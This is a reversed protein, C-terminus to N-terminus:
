AAKGYKEAYLRRAQDIWKDRLIRDRFTLLRSFEEVAVHDWDMIQRYTYIGFENLRSELVSAIGSIRKLDDREEPPITYILGRREDQQLAVDLNTTTINPVNAQESAEQFRDNQQQSTRVETLSQAVDSAAVPEAKTLQSELIVNQRRLQAIAQDRDRELAVISQHSNALQRRLQDLMDNSEVARAATADREAAIMSVDRVLQENAHQLEVVQHQLSELANLKQSIIGLRKTQESLVNGLEDNQAKEHQLSALLQERQGRMEDLDRQYVGIQQLNDEWVSQSDCLQRAITDRDLRMANFEKTQERLGAHLSVCQQRLSNLERIDDRLTEITHEHQRVLTELENRRSEFTALQAVTKEHGRSLAELARQHHQLDELADASSAAITDREAMALRSLGIALSVDQRSSDLGRRTVDLQACLQRVETATATQCALVTSQQELQTQLEAIHRRQYDITEILEDRDVSTEDYRKELQSKQRALEQYQKQMAAYRDAWTRQDDGQQRLQLELEQVRAALDRQIVAHSAALQQNIRASQSSEDTVRRLELCESEAQERADKVATLEQVLSEYKAQLNGYDENVVRLQDALQQANHLQDAMEFRERREIEQEQLISERAEQLSSEAKLRLQRETEVAAAAVQKQEHLCREVTVRQEREATLQQLTQAKLEELSRISAVLDGRTSDQNQLAEEVRKGSQRLATLESFQENHKRELNCYADRQQRLSKNLDENQEGLECLQRSISASDGRFPFWLAYGLLVGAILLLVASFLPLNLPLEALM